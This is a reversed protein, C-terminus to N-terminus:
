VTQCESLTRIANSVRLAENLINNSANIDRDLEFGCVECKFVRDSLSLSDNKYGCCCCTKSSAFWRDVKIVQKGYWEAKYSLITYFQAFSADSIFKALKHNKVM